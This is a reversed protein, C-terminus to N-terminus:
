LKVTVSIVDLKVDGSVGDGWVGQSCDGGAEVGYVGPHLVVVEFEVTVFRIDDDKTWLGEGFRDGVDGDREVVGVESRGREDAVKADMEVGIESKVMVDGLYGPGGEKVELVNGSEAGKEGGRSGFGEDMGEDSGTKVIAIADEIAKRCSGEIFELM